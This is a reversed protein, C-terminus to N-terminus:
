KSEMKAPPSEKGTKGIMSSNGNPLLVQLRSNSNEKDGEVVINSETIGAVNRAIMQDINMNKGKMNKGKMNREDDQRLKTTPRKATQRTKTKLNILTGKKLM